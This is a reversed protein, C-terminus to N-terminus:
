LNAEKMAKIQASAKTAAERKKKPNAKSQFGFIHLM